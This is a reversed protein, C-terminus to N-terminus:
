ICSHQVSHQRVECSFIAVGAADVGKPTVGHLGNITSTLLYSIEQIAAWCFDRECATARFTIVQSNFPDSKGRLFFAIMDDGRWNLMVSYQVGALVKLTKTEFGGIYRDISICTYIRIIHPSCNGVLCDEDRNHIGIVFDTGNFRDRLNTTDTSGFFYGKMNIGYLCSARQRYINCSEISVQERERSM